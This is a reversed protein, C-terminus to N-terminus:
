TAGLKANIDAIAMTIARDAVTSADALTGQARRIARADRGRLAAVVEEIDTGFGRMAALLRRHEPEVVQPADIRRLEGVIDDIADQYRNLTARDERQASDRTASGSLRNVTTAFDMQAANLDDVYANREESNGCGALAAVALLLVLTTRGPM